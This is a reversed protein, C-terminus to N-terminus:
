IFFLRTANREGGDGCTYLPYSTRNDQLYEVLQAEFVRAKDFATRQTRGIDAQNATTLNQGTFNAPGAETPVQQLYPLLDALSYWALVPAIRELLAQNLPTVTDAAVQAILEDYLKYGLTARIYSAQASNIAAQVRESWQLNRDIPVYSRWDDQNLLLTLPM